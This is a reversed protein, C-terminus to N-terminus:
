DECILSLVIPLALRPIKAPKHCNATWSLHDKQAGFRAEQGSYISGVQQLIHLPFRAMLQCTQGIEVHVRPGLFEPVLGFSMHGSAKFKYSSDRVELNQILNLQGLPRLLEGVYPRQLLSAQM